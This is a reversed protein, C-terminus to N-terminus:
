WGLGDRTNDGSQPFVQTEMKGLVTDLPFLAQGQACLKRARPLNGRLANARAAEIWCEPLDPRSRLATEAEHCAQEPCDGWGLRALMLHAQYLESHGPAVAVARHCLRRAAETQGEAVLQTAFETLLVPDQPRDHVERRLLEGNRRSRRLHGGSGELHGYHHICIDLKIKKYNRSAPSREVTEHVRGSYTIGTGGPFVRIQRRPIYGPSKCALGEQGPGNPVFGLAQRRWTYNRQELVVLSPSLSELLNRLDEQDVPTIAEDCDLVVVWRGRAADLGRNRAASFDHGWQSSILRAGHLTAVERSGDRSGTDVVVAEDYLTRHDRLLTDLHDAQDKVIVALSLFPLSSKVIGVSQNTEGQRGTEGSRAVIV